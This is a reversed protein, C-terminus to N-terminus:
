RLLQTDPYFGYWAFWMADIANIPEGSDKFVASQFDLSPDYTVVVTSEGLRIEMRHEKRLRKKLIAAANGARDRIGVVVDKPHLRGDEAIPEFIVRKSAYYGQKGDLYSGYPDGNRGYDRIFGTDRSLVKTAPHEKRWKEWTTWVVRFEQLRQARLSGAIATGFIQPWLSDTARDYMILNSNVLKGSVGFTTPVEPTVRGKFGIATGTLPCYTISVPEGDITENVIEHWVVIRRPYAAVLGGYDVGFVVDEPLLWQDADAASTYRPEEIAPIGDKPPGGSAIHDALRTLFADDDRVADPTETGRARAVSHLGEFEHSSAASAARPTASTVAM